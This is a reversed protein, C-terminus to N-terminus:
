SAKSLLSIILDCQERVQTLGWIVYNHAYFDPDKGIEESTYKKTLKSEVSPHIILMAVKDEKTYLRLPVEAYKIDRDWLHDCASMTSSLKEFENQVDALESKNVEFCTELDLRSQRFEDYTSGKARVLIGAVAEKFKQRADHREVAQQEALKTAESKGCGILGICFAAMVIRSAVNKM